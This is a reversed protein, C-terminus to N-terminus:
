ASPYRYHVFDRGDHLRHELPIFVLQSSAALVRHMLAVTGLMCLMSAPSQLILSSLSESSTM